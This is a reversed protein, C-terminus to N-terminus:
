HLRDQRQAQDFKVLMTPCGINVKSYQGGLAIAEPGGVRVPRVIVYQHSHNELSKPFFNFRNAAAVGRRARIKLNKQAIRAQMRQEEMPQRMPKPPVSLVKETTQQRMDSFKQASDLNV